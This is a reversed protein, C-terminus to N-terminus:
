RIEERIEIWNKDPDQLFLNRSGTAPSIGLTKDGAFDTTRIQNIECNKLFGDFDLTTFALHIAKHLKVETNDMKILHLQIGNGLSFWRLTTAEEPAEIEELFLIKEYFSASRELDDVLLATHNFTLEINQSNGITIMLLLGLIFCYIKKM